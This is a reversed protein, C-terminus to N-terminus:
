KVQWFRITDDQSASLLSDGGQAFLVRLFPKTDENLTNLSTLDASKLLLLKRDGAVALMQGDPSFSLDNVSTQIESPAKLNSEIHISKLLTSDGLRWLRVFGDADGSALVQGDGSFALSLVGSTRVALPTLQQHDKLRFLVIASNETSAESRRVFGINSATGAALVEGNMSFAVSTIWKDVVYTHLLSGDSVRWVRVKGEAGGSALNQGDPSFVVSFFQNGEFTRLLQGNAVQLLRVGDNCSAALIKSDPSFALGYVPYGVTSYRLSGDNTQAINIAYKGSSLDTKDVTAVIEGDPSFTALDMHGTIRVTKILRNEPMGVLACKTLCLSLSFVFLSSIMLLRM